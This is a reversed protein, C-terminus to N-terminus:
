NEWKGTIDTVTIKGRKVLDDILPSRGITGAIIVESRTSTKDISLVPLNSTVLKIDAQLDKFARIVGPDDKASILMQASSMGSSITFSGSERQTSIKLTGTQSNAAGTLIIILFSVFVARKMPNLNNTAEEELKFEDDM